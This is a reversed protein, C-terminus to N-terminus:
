LQRNATIVRVSSYEYSLSSTSSPNLMASAQTPSQAPEEKSEATSVSAAPSMSEMMTDDEEDARAMKQVAPQPSTEVGLISQSGQDANYPPSLQSRALTGAAPIANAEANYV